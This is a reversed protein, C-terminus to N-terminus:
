ILPLTSPGGRPVPRPFPRVSKYFDALQSASDGKTLDFHGHYWVIFENFDVYGSGDVDIERWFAKIRAKSMDEKRDAVGLLLCILNTFEDFEIMGSGDDDLSDYKRKVDEVEPHNMGFARSIARSRVQEPALLILENFAEKSIWLLFDHFTLESPVPERPVLEEPIDRVNPYREIFFERLLMTFELENVRGKGTCDHRRFYQWARTVQGPPLNFDEALKSAEFTTLEDLVKEAEGAKVGCALTETVTREVQSLWKSPGRNMSQTPKM